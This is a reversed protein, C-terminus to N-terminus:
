FHSAAKLIDWWRVQLMGSGYDEITGNQSVHLKTFTESTSLWEEYSKLDNLARREFTVTGVPM